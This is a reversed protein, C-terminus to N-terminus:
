NVKTCLGPYCKKGDYKFKLFESFFNTINYTVKHFFLRENFCCLLKTPAAKIYEVVILM